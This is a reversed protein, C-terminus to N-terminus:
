DMMPSLHVAASISCSTETMFGIMLKMDPACALTFMKHAERMGTCMMLQHQDRTLPVVVLYETRCM